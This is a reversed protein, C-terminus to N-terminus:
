LRTLWSAVVARPRADARLALVLESARLLAAGPSDDAVGESLQVLLYGEDGVVKVPRMSRDHIELVAVAPAPDVCIEASSGARWRLRFALLRMLMRGLRWRAAAREPCRSCLRESGAMRVRM